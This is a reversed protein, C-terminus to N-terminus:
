SKSNEYKELFCNDVFKSCEVINTFKYDAAEIVLRNSNSRNRISRLKQYLPKRFFALRLKNKLKNKKTTIVSNVQQQLESNHSALVRNFEENEETIDNGELEIAHLHSSINIFYGSLDLPIYDLKDGLESKALILADASFNYPVFLSLPVKKFSALEPQTQKLSLNQERNSISSTTSQPSIGHFSLPADLYFYKEIFSFVIVALYYDGSLIDPFVKGFKSKIKAFVSNHYATNILQPIQIKESIDGKCLGLNVFLQKVAEKADYIILENTFSNTVLTNPKIIEGHEDVKHYYYEAMKCAVVDAKHEKIIKSLSELYIQSHADDDGLFTIYEGTAHSLAFEFSEDMPVKKPTKVYKIREDSFQKVVKETEDTSCNDSVILEFDEFTQNLASQIAFPLYKARNLTPLVISFFPKNNM